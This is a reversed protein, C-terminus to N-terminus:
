DININEIRMNHECYNIKKDEIIGDLKKNKINIIKLYKCGVCNNYYKCNHRIKKM